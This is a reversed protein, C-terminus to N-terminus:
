TALRVIRRAGDDDCAAVVDFRALAVHGREGGPVVRDRGLLIARASAEDPSALAEVWEAGNALATIVVSSWRLVDIM